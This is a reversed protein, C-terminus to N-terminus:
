LRKNDQIYYETTKKLKKICNRRDDFIDDKGEMNEIGVNKFGLGVGRDTHV